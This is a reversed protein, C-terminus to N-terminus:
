EETAFNLYLFYILAVEAFLEFVCRQRWSDRTDLTVLFPHGLKLILEKGSSSLNPRSKITSVSNRCLCALIMLNISNCSCGIQQKSNILRCASYTVFICIVKVIDACTYCYM